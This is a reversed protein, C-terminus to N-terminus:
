PQIGVVSRDVIVTAACILGASLSLANIVRCIQNQPPPLLLRRPGPAEAAKAYALRGQAKAGKPQTGTRRLSRRSQSRLQPIRRSQTRALLGAPLVSRNQGQKGQAM